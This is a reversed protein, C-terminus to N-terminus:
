DGTRCSAGIQLALESIEEHSWDYDNLTEVLKRALFDYDKKKIAIELVKLSIAHKVM